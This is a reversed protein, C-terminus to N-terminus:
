EKVEKSFTDAPSTKDRSIEIGKYLSPVRWNPLGQGKENSIESNMPKTKETPSHNNFEPFIEDIIGCTGSGCRLKLEEIKKKFEEEQINLAKKIEDVDELEMEQGCDECKLWFISDSDNHLVLLPSGCEICHEYKDKLVEEIIENKDKM